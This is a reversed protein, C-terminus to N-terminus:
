FIMGFIKLKLHMTDYQFIKSESHISGALRLCFYFGFDPGLLLLLATKYMNRTRTPDSRQM